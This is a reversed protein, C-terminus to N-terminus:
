NGKEKPVWRDFKLDWASLWSSPLGKSQLAELIYPRNQRYSRALAELDKMVAKLMATDAESPM